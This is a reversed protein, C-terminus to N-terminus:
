ELRVTLAVPLWLDPHGATLLIGRYVGPRVDPEVNISIDVGRSSRGPVPIDAPDFAVHGADVVGGHEAILDSCRLRTRGMDTTGTNHLWVTATAVGPAVVDLMIRGRADAASVDFAAPVATPTEAARPAAGLLLQGLMVWWSRILPEIDTAGFLDAREARSLPEPSSVGESAQLGSSALRIFRDVLASAARFGESQIASLARMNAASDFVSAWPLDNGPGDGNGSAVGM